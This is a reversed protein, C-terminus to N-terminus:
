KFLNIIFNIIEALWKPMNKFPTKVEILQKSLNELEQEQEYYKDEYEKLLKNTEDLKSLTTFYTNQLQELKELNDEYMKKTESLENVTTEYRDNLNKQEENKRNIVTEYEQIDKDLQNIQEELHKEYEKNSDNKVKYEELTEVLKEQEQVMNNYKEILAKKTTELATVQDIYNQVTSSLVDIKGKLQAVYESGELYNKKYEEIQLYLEKIEEQAKAYKDDYEKIEEELEQIRKDKAKESYTDTVGYFQGEHDYPLVARGKNGWTEDWSNQILWGNNNWGYVVMAHYGHVSDNNHKVINTGEEVYSGYYWPVAIVVPGNEMLSAKVSDIDKLQYYSTIRNPFADPALRYGDKEFYTIAIPVEINYPFLENPVDGYKMIIELAKPVEMGRDKHSSNTRNGYIYGTSFQTYEGEQVMNFYEIVTSLSFAVCSNIQGQSKVKPMKLEFTDPFDSANIGAVITASYDRIDKKPPVVGFGQDIINDNITM